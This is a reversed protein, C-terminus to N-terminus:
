DTIKTRVLFGSGPAVATREWIGEMMEWKRGTM